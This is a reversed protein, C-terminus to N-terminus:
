QTPPPGQGHTRLWVLESEARDARGKAQSWMVALWVIAAVFLLIIVLGLVVRGTSRSCVVASLAISM